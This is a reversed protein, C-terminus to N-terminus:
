EFLFAHPFLRPIGQSESRPFIPKCGLAQWHVHRIRCSLGRHHDDSNGSLWPWRGHDEDSSPLGLEVALRAHVLRLLDRYPLTPNEHEVVPEVSAFAELLRRDTVSAGTASIWERLASTLGREWDILTGYCDFTLVDFDRIDLDAM